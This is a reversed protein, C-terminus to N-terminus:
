VAPPRPPRPPAPPPPPGPPNPPKPPPAGADTGPRLASGLEEVRTTICNGDLGSSMSSEPVSSCPSNNDLRACSTSSFTPWPCTTINAIRGNQRQCDCPVYAIPNLAIM